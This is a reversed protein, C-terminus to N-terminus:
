NKFSLVDAVRLFSNSHKASPYLSVSVLTLLQVQEGKEATKCKIIEETARGDRHIMCQGSPLYTMFSSLLASAICVHISALYM